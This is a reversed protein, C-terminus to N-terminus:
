AFSLPPAGKPWVSSNEDKPEKEETAKTERAYGKVHSPSGVPLAPGLAPGETNKGWIWVDLRAQSLGCTWEWVWGQLCVHYDPWVSHHAWRQSLRPIIQNVSRGPGGPTSPCFVLTSFGYSVPIILELCHDGRPPLPFCLLILGSLSVCPAEFTSITESARYHICLAKM